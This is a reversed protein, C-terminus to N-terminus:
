VVSKRDICGVCQVIFPCNDSKLVVEIDMTIRKNEDSNGSRRMQKVAIVSNSTKHLMKVVHGCTGNGLEGLHELDHIQTRYEQGNIKLLGSSKIIEQWRSDDEQTTKQPMPQPVPLNGPRRRPTGGLGGMLRDPRAPRGGAPPDGGSRPGPIPRSLREQLENIKKELSQSPTSLTSM